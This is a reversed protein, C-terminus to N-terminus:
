VHARGIEPDDPGSVDHAELLVANETSWQVMSVTDGERLSAAIARCSEQLLELPVGGMSGSTDLVLVVNVARREDVTLEPSTVAIQMVLEDDTLRSVAATVALGEDPAAYDFHYYNFFEWTRIPVDGLSDWGALVAEKIQAPSSVSNSDDPSLFLTTPAVDDCAAEATDDIAGTDPPSGTDAVDTDVDTDTDTDADTDSDTDTDTDADGETWDATDSASRETPPELAGEECASLALVSLLSLTM